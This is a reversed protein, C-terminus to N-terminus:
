ARGGIGVKRPAVDGEGGRDRNLTQLFNLTFHFRQTHRSGPSAPLEASKQPEQDWM